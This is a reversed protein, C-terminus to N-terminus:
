GERFARPFRDLLPALLYDALTREGTIILVEVGAHRPLPLRRGAARARALDIEVDAEFDATGAREDTLRDGFRFWDDGRCRPL